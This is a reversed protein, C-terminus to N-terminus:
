KNNKSNRMDQIHLILEATQKGALEGAKNAQKIAAFMLIWSGIVGLTKLLTTKM